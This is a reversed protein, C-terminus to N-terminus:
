GDVEIGLERMYGECEQLRSDLRTYGNTMVHGNGHEIVGRMFSHMLTVLKTLDENRKEIENFMVEIDLKTQFTEDLIGGYVWEPLETSVSEAWEEIPTQVCIDFLSM